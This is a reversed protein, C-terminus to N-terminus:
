CSWSSSATMSCWCSSSFSESSWAPSRVNWRCCWSTCAPSRVNWRCILSGLVWYITFMGAVMETNPDQQAPKMNCGAAQKPTSLMNTTWSWARNSECHHRRNYKCCKSAQKAFIISAIHERYPNPRKPIEQYQLRSSANTSIAPRNNLM